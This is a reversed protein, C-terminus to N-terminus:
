SGISEQRRSNPTLLEAVEGAKGAGIVDAVQAAHREATAIEVASFPRVENRRLVIVGNPGDAGLVPAAVISHISRGLHAAEPYDTAVAQLDPVHVTAADLVARGPVTGRTLPRDGAAQAVGWGAVLRLVGAVVLRLSAESAGCSQGADVLIAHLQSRLSPTNGALLEVALATPNWGNCASLDAPCSAVGVLCDMEARLDVYDGAHSLPTEVTLSGDPAVPVNM